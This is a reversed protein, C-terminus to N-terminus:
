QIVEKWEAISWGGSPGSSFNVDALGLDYTLTANNDMFIKYAILETVNVNNHLNVLGNQAYVIVGTANNHLDVAASHHTCNSGSSGTCAKTTLLMLYSGLSGSGGFVGNNQMHIWGDSLIIGSLTGYGSDLRIGAGNSIDINGVVWVTGTLVVESNNSITLNGTIKKPGLFITDGNNLSYNGSIVGGSEADNKWGQITSTSFPFNQSSPSEVVCYQNPCVSGHVVTNVFSPARAIGSTSDGITVEKVTEVSIVDGSVKTGNDGTIPGNSYISGNVTANNGTEIGGAGVQVGYFFEAGEGSVVKSYLSKFNELFESNSKIEKGGMIDSVTTSATSGNLSITFSSAINKGRKLRYVADEVGAEASFFATRGRFGREAGKAEKLALNSVAGLISLLIFLLFIVATMAAQGRKIHEGLCRAEM